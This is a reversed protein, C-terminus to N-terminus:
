TSFAACFSSALPSSMITTLSASAVIPAGLLVAVIRVASPPITVSGVILLFARAASSTVIIASKSSRLFILRWLLEGDGAAYASVYGRNPRQSESGANGVFVKDGGVYPSDSIGYEEATDCTVESWLERGTAADLAFLRCDATTGYVRGQWVAVGRNARALWSMSPDGTLRSRVGPDHTWLVKGTAADIALVISYAGALYIVGDVVIPTTAFGDPVPLDSYWALGLKEVTGTDIDDLPSYHSGSFDGGKLFWNTGTAADKLVREETVNGAALAAGGALLLGFGLAQIKRRM